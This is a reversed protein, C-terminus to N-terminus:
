FPFACARYLIMLSHNLNKNMHKPSVNHGNGFYMNLDINSYKTM